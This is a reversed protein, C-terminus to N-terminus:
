LFQDIAFVTHHKIITVVELTHGKIILPLNATYVCYVSTCDCAYAYVCLIDHTGRTIGNKHIYPRFFSHYMQANLWEVVMM